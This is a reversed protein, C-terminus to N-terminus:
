RLKLVKLNKKLLDSVITVVCCYKKNNRKLYYLFCKEALNTDKLWIVEVVTFTYVGTYVSICCAAM